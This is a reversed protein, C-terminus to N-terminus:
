FCGLHGTGAIIILGYGVKRLFRFNRILLLSTGTVSALDLALLLALFAVLVLFFVLTLLVLIFIFASLRRTQSREQQRVGFRRNSLLFLFFLFFVVVVLFVDLLGGISLRGDGLGFLAGDLVNRGLVLGFGVALLDFCSRSASRINHWNSQGFCVRIQPCM